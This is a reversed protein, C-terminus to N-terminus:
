QMRVHFFVEGSEEPPLAQQYTWRLSEVPPAAANGGATGPDAAGAPESVTFNEGDTSFEVRSGPGGASGAVYRTGEPIPNTIVIREADVATGSENTFTITYRLEEGAVVDEAPLLERKVQGGADLTTEVKSVATDLVVEAAAAGSVVALAWAAAPALLRVRRNGNGM